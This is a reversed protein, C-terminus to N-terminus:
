LLEVFNDNGSVTKAPVTKKEPASSSAPPQVSNDKRATNKLTEMSASVVKTELEPIGSQSIEKNLKAANDKNVFVKVVVIILLIFLTVQIPIVLYRSLKWMWFFTGAMLFVIVSAFIIYSAM